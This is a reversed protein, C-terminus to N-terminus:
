AAVQKPPDVVRFGPARGKGGAEQFAIQSNWSGEPHRAAAEEPTRPKQEGDSSEATM